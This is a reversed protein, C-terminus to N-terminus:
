RLSAKLAGVMNKMEKPDGTPHLVIMVMSWKGFPAENLSASYNGDGWKNTQFMYPASGAGTESKKPKMNVFWVTYVSDPKLGRAQISVHSNDIFATGEADPHYKTPELDLTRGNGVAWGATIFFVTVLGIIMIAIMKKSTM